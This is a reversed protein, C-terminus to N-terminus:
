ISANKQDNKVSLKELNQSIENISLTSLEIDEKKAEPHRLLSVSDDIIKKLSLDSGTRQPTEVEIKKIGEDGEQIIKIEIKSPEMKDAIKKLNSVAKLYLTKTILCTSYLGLFKEANKDLSLDEPRGIKLVEFFHSKLKGELQDIKLDKHYFDHVIQNLKEILESHDKYIKQYQKVLKSDEESLTTFNPLVTLISIGNM